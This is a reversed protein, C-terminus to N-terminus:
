ELYSSIIDWVSNKQLSLKWGAVGALDYEKILAMKLGISREEELWIQYTCGDKVYEGYYQGLVENWMPTVDNKKLQNEAYAM